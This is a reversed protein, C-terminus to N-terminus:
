WNEYGRYGTAYKATNEDFGYKEVLIDKAKRKSGCKNVLSYGLQKAQKQNKSLGNELRLPENYSGIREVQDPTFIENGYFKYSYTEGYRVKYGMRKWVKASHGKNEDTSKNRYNNQQIYVNNQTYYNNVVTPKEEKIITADVTPTYSKHKKTETPYTTGIDPEEFKARTKASNKKKKKDELYDSIFSYVLMVVIAIFIFEM